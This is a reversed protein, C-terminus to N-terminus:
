VNLLIEKIADSGMHTNQMEMITDYICIKEGSNSNLHLYIQVTCYNIWRKLITWKKGKEKMIKVQQFVLTKQTMPRTSNGQTQLKSIPDRHYNLCTGKGEANRTFQYKFKSSQESKNM